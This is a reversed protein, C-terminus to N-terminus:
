IVVNHAAPFGVNLPSYFGEAPKVEQRSKEISAIKAIAIDALDFAGNRVM